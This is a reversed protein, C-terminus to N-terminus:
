KSEAVTIQLGSKVLTVPATLKVYVELKLLLPLELLNTLPQDVDYNPGYKVSNVSRVQLRQLGRLQVLKSVPIFARGFICDLILKLYRLRPLIPISNIVIHCATELFLTTLNAFRTEPIKNEGLYDQTLISIKLKKLRPFELEQLVAKKQHDSKFTRFSLSELTKASSSFLAMFNFDMITSRDLALKRLTFNLEVIRTSWINWKRLKLQELRSLLALSGFDLNPLNKTDAGYLSLARLGTLSKTFDDTLQYVTITLELKTLSSHKLVQSLDIAQGLSKVQLKQLGSLNNSLNNSLFVGTKDSDLEIATSFRSTELVVSSLYVNETLKQRFINFPVSFNFYPRDILKLQDINTRTALVKLSIPGALTDFTLRKLPATQLNIPFSTFSTKSNLTLKTRGFSLTLRHLRRCVLTVLKRDFATLERFILGWIDSPLQEFGLVMNLPTQDSIIPEM